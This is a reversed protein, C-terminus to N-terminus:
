KQEPEYRGSNLCLNLNLPINGNVCSSCGWNCCFLMAKSVASMEVSLGLNVYAWIMVCKLLIENEDMQVVTITHSIM